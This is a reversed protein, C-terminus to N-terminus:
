IPLLDKYSRGYEANQYSKQIFDDTGSRIKSAEEAPVSGLTFGGPTYGTAVNGGLTFGGTGELTARRTPNTPLQFGSMGATGLKQEATRATDGLQNGYLLSNYDLARNQTDRMNLEGMGRQGSFALGAGAYNERANGLNAKYQGEQNATDNEYKASLLGTDRALQDKIGQMTEAYQPHIKQTVYDTFKQIIEPTIQLDPNVVNGKAQEDNFQQVIAQFAADQSTNGTSYVKDGIMFGGGQAGSAGGAGTGNQSALSSDPPNQGGQVAQIASVTKPGVIGDASLGHASQFSKVANQTQPGFIGDVKGQYIGLGALYQQLQKVSDGSSGFKLNGGALAFTSEPTGTDPLKPSNLVPTASTTQVAQPFTSEDQETPTFTRSLFSLKSNPTIGIKALIDPTVGIVSGTTNIVGPISASYSNKGGTKKTKTVTVGARRLADEGSMGTTYVYTNFLALNENGTKQLERNYIDQYKEM